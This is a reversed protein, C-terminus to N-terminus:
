IEPVGEGFFLNRFWPCHAVVANFLSPEPYGGLCEMMDATTQQSVDSLTSKKGRKGVEKSELQSGQPKATLLWERFLFQQPACSMSGGCATTLMATCLRCRNQVVFHGLADFVKNRGDVFLFQAEIFALRDEPSMEFLKYYLTTIYLMFVSLEQCHKTRRQLSQM